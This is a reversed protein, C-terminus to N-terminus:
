SRGRNLRHHAVLAAACALTLVGFGIGFYVGAGGISSTVMNAVAGLLLLTWLLPRVIGGDDGTAPGPRYPEPSALDHHADTM